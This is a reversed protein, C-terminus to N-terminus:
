PTPFSPPILPAHTGAAPPAATEAKMAERLCLIASALEAAVTRAVFIKSVTM